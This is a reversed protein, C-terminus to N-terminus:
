SATTWRTASMTDSPSACASADRWPRWSMFTRHSSVPRQCPEDTPGFMLSTVISTTDTSPAPRFSASMGTSRNGFKESRVASTRSSRTNRRTPLSFFPPSSRAMESRSKRSVGPRHIDNGSAPRILPPESRAGRSVCASTDACAANRGTGFSPFAVKWGTIKL